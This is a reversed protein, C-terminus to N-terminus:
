GSRNSAKSIRRISSGGCQRAIGLRPSGPSSPLFGVLAAAPWYGSDLALTQESLRVAERYGEATLRHFSSLARLRCDYADLSETPKRMTREIEAFLLKPEIAGVVGAAV